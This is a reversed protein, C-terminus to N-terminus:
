KHFFIHGIIKVKYIWNIFLYLNLILLEYLLIFILKLNTRILILLFLKIFLTDFSKNTILNISQNRM